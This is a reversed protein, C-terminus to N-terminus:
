ENWEKEWFVAFANLLWRVRRTFLYVFRGRNYSVASYIPYVASDYDDEYPLIGLDYLPTLPAYEMKSELLQQLTRELTARNRIDPYRIKVDQRPLVTCRDYQYASFSMGIIRKAKESECILKIRSPLRYKKYRDYTKFFRDVESAIEHITQEHYHYQRSLEAASRQQKYYENYLQYHVKATNEGKIAAYSSLIERNNM